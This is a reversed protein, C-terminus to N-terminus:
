KPKLVSDLLSGVEDTQTTSVSSSGGSVEVGMAQARKKAIELKDRSKELDKQIKLAKLQDEQSESGQVEELEKEIRAVENQASEVNIQADLEQSKSYGNGDPDSKSTSGTPKKRAEKRREQEAEIETRRRTQQRREAPTKAVKQGQITEDREVVLDNDSFSGLSNPSVQTTSPSGPVGFDNQTDSNPRAGDPIPPLDESGPIPPLSDVGGPPSFGNPDAMVDDASRFDSPQGTAPLTSTGAGVFEGMNVGAALANLRRQEEERLSDARNQEALARTNASTLGAQARIRSIDNSESQLGLRRRQIGLKQQDLRNDIRAQGVVGLGAAELAARDDQANNFKTRNRDNEEARIGQKMEREKADSIFQGLRLLNKDREMQRSAQQHIRTDLQSGSRVFLGGLAVGSQSGRSLNLGFDM